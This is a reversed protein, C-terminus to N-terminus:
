LCLPSMVSTLPVSALPSLCLLLRVVNVPAVILSGHSSCCHLCLMSLATLAAANLPVVALPVVTLPRVTRSCSCCCGTLPASTLSRHPLLSLILLTTLAAATPSFHSSCCHSLSLTWETPERRTEGSGRVAVALGPM